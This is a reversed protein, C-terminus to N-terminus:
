LDRIIEEIRLGREERISCKMFVAELNDASYKEKLFEATGEEVKKGSAIMAFRDCLTEAEILNHSSMLISRSESVFKKMLKKLSVISEIDLGRTPEDLIVLETELMFACIIQLKKKMGHSYTAIIQDLADDIDFLEVLAKGRKSSDSQYMKAIFDIYERGTLADILITEDAVYSVKQKYEKKKCPIGDLTVDGQSMRIIDLLCNIITTKGSGNPGALCVIEGSGVDLNFDSIGVIGNPYKKTLHSIKLM